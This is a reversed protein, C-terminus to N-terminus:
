NEGCERGAAGSGQSEQEHADRPLERIRRIYASVHADEYEPYAFGFTGALERGTRRFLEGLDFLAQWTHQPDADCYTRELLDWLEPELLTKLFKGAKGSSRTFGSRMGVYWTLMKMLQARVVEDLMFHAYTLEGRWLGKAVYPTVWWFENCCDDFAKADPPQPWYGRDSPPPLAGIRGDKDLLVRTLSDATIRAASELPYFSLDIRNGDEFQMLYAYGDSDEPLPDGMDDPQQVIMPEGFAPPITANRRYPEVSRVLYVIDYDQLPDPKVNPNVRSGNLIVARIDERAQAFGLILAMMEAESRM